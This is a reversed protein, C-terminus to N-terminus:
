EKQKKNTKSSRRSRKKAWAEEVVTQKRPGGASL